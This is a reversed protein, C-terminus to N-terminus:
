QSKIFLADNFAYYIRHGDEKKGVCRNPESEVLQLGYNKSLKQIYRIMKGFWHNVQNKVVLHSLHFEVGFQQVNNLVGTEIWHELLHLEEGEVDMKLYTIPKEFHKFEELIEQLTQVIIQDANGAKKRAADSIKNGKFHAIGIGIPYYYINSHYSNEPRKVEDTPDFAQVKCGVIWWLTLDFSLTAEIM